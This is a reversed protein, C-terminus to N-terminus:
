FVYRPSSPCILLTYLVLVNATLLRKHGESEDLLAPKRVSTTSVIQALIRDYVAQAEVEV